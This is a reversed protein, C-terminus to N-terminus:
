AGTSIDISFQYRRFKYQVANILIGISRNADPSLPAM